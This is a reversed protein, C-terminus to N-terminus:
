QKDSSKPVTEKGMDGESVEMIPDLEHPPVQKMSNQPSIEEGMKKMYKKPM